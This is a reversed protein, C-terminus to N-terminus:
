AAALARGGSSPFYGLKLGGARTKKTFFNESKIFFTKVKNLRPAIIRAM